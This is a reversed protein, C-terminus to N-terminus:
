KRKNIPDLSPKQTFFSQNNQSKAVSATDKNQSDICINRIHKLYSKYDDVLKNYNFINNIYM